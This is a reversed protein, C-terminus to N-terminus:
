MEGCMTPSSRQHTGQHLAGDSRRRVGLCLRIRQRKTSPETPVTECSHSTGSHTVSDGLRWSLLLPHGLAAVANVAVGLHNFWPVHNLAIEPDDRCAHAAQSVAECCFPPPCLVRACLPISPIPGRRRPQLSHALDRWLRARRSRRLYRSDSESRR